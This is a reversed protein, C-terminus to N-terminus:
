CARVSRTFGSQAQDFSFVIACNSFQVTATNTSPRSYASLAASIWSNASVWAAGNAAMATTFQASDAPYTNGNAAYYIDLVRKIEQAVRLTAYTFVEAVSVSVVIDNFLSPDTPHSRLFNPGTANNSELYESALNVNSRTQGAINLGPAIIVAAITGTGDLSFNSTSLTNLSVSNQRFAPAVAYWYQQGLGAYRDSRLAPNSAQGVRVPLRGLGVATGNCNMSADNNTDSCPLRGPGNNPAVNYEPNTMAYALLAEKVDLMENLKAINGRVQPNASNIAALFFATSGLILAIFFLLLVAGTQRRILNM